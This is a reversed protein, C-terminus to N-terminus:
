GTQMSLIYILRLFLMNLNGCVNSSAYEVRTHELTLTIKNQFKLIELMLTLEYGTLM